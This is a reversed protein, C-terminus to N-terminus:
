GSTLDPQLSAIEGWCDLCYHEQKREDVKWRYEQLMAMLAKTNIRWADPNCATSRAYAFQQSCADCDILMLAKLM